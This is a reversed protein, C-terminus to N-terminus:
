KAAEWAEDIAIQHDRAFAINGNHTTSEKFHICVQGNMGNNSITGGGHPMGNISAAMTRGNITVWVPRPDWEWRGGYTELMIATDEQTLTEVDAHKGNSFSQVYYTLGTRIDYVEAPTYITFVDRAERWSLLEVIESFYDFDSYENVKKETIYESKIFGEQGNVFVSSWGDANYTIIDLQEGVPLTRYIQATLNAEARLNVRTNTRYIIQTSADDNAMVTMPALLTSISITLIILKKSITNFLM